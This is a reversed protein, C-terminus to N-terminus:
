SPIGRDQLPPWPPSGQFGELLRHFLFDWSRSSVVSLARTKSCVQSQWWGAPCGQVFTKVRRHRLAEETSHIPFVARCLLSFSPLARGFCTSPIRIDFDADPGAAGPGLGLAVARPSPSTPPRPDRLSPPCVCPDPMGSSLGLWWGVLFCTTSLLGWSSHASSCM